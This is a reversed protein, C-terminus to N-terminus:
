QKLRGCKKWNGTRSFIYFAYNAYDAFVLEIYRYYFKFIILFIIIITLIDGILRIVDVAFIGPLFKKLKM